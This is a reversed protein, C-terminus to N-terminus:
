RQAVEHALEVREREVGLLGVLAYAIARQYAAQKMAESPVRDGCDLAESAERQLRDLQQRTM